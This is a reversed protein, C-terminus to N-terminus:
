IDWLHDPIAAPERDATPVLQRFRQWYRSLADAILNSSGFIHQSKVLINYRLTIFVLKRVLSM